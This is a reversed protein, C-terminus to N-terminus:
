DVQEGLDYIYKNLVAKYDDAIKYSNAAWNDVLKMIMSDMHRQLDGYKSVIDLEAKFHMYISYIMTPLGAVVDEDGYKKSLAKWAAVKAAEIKDLESISIKNNKSLKKDFDKKMVVINMLRIINKVAMNQPQTKELEVALAWLLSAVVKTRFEM